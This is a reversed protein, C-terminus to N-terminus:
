TPIRWNVPAFSAGVPMFEPIASAEEASIAAMALALQPELARAEASAPGEPQALTAHREASLPSVVASAPRSEPFTRGGLASAPWSEFLGAAGHLKLPAITDDPAETVAYWSELTAGPLRQAESFRVQM